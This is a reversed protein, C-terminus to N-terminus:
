TTLYLLYVCLVRGLDDREKPASPTLSGNEPEETGTLLCGSSPILSQAGVQIIEERAWEPASIHEEPQLRPQLAFLHGSGCRLYLLYSRMKESGAQHSFARWKQPNDFV